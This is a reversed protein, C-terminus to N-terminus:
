ITMTQFKFQPYTQRNALNLNCVFHLLCLAHAPRFASLWGVIFNYIM